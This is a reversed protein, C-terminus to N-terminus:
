KQPVCLHNQCASLDWECSELENRISPPLEGQQIAQVVQCLYGYTGSIRTRRASDLFTSLRGVCEAIVSLKASIDALHKQAVVVSAVQWVAAADVLKTLNGIDFLTAHEAIHRSADLAFARFGDGTAARVLEGNIAVEMLHRGQHANAVLVSPASQMLAGIRGTLGDGLEIPRASRFCEDDTLRAITVAPSIPDFGFAIAAPRIAEIARPEPHGLLSAPVTVDLPETVQSARRRAYILVLILLVLAVLGGVWPWVPVPM